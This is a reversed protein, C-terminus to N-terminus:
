ALGPYRNSRQSPPKDPMTVGASSGIFASLVTVAYKTKLPSTMKTSSLEVAELGNTTEGVVEIAFSPGSQLELFTRLGQRVIAHDDVIMVRKVPGAM